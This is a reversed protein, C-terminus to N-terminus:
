SRFSVARSPSQLMVIEVCIYWIFRVHEESDLQCHLGLFLLLRCMENEAVFVTRRNTVFRVSYSNITNEVGPADLKVNCITKTLVYGKM